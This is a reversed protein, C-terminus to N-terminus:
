GACRGACRPKKEVMYTQMQLNKEYFIYYGRQKTMHDNEYRFLSRGARVCGDADTGKRRWLTESPSAFVDPLQEGSVQNGCFGDSLRMTPFYRTKEEYIREWIEETFDIHEASAEMDEVTLAGRVFLYSVGKSWKTEGTLVAVRGATEQSTEAQKNLFTYVYDEVYIRYNEDALGIQRINRPVCFM